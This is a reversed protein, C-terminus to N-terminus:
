TDNGKKMLVPAYLKYLLLDLYFFMYINYLTFIYKTM